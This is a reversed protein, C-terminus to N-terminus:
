NIYENSTRSAIPTRNNINRSTFSSKRIIERKKNINLDITKNTINYREVNKKPMKKNKEKEIAKNEFTHLQARLNQRFKNKTSKDIFDSNMVTLSVLLNISEKMENMSVKMENMSTTMKDMKADIKDIKKEVRSKENNEKMKDLFSSLEVPSYSKYIKKDKKEKPFERENQEMISNRIRNFSKSLRLVKLANKHSIM